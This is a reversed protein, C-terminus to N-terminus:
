RSKMLSLISIQAIVHLTKGDIISAAIGTYAGKVLMHAVGRHYFNQTITQITKSKGVGGEGAIIMLLQSPKRNALTENLHWDIIDYTRRQSFLLNTADLATLHEEVHPIIDVGAACSEGLNSTFTEDM